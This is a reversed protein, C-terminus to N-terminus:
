TRFDRPASSDGTCLAQFCLAAICRADPVATVRPVASPQLPRPLLLCATPFHLKPASVRVWHVAVSHPGSFGVLALACAFPSRRTPWCMSVMELGRARHRRAPFLSRSAPGGGGQHDKRGRGGHLHTDTPSLCILSSTIGSERTSKIGKMTSPLRWLWRRLRCGFRQVPCPCVCPFYGLAYAPM